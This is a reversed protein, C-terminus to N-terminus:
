SPSKARRALRNRPWSACKMPWWRSARAMSARVRRKLRRTSRWCTRRHRSTASPTSLKMCRAPRRRSRRTPRARRNLWAGGEHAESETQGALGSSHESGRAIQNISNTLGTLLQTIAQVKQTIAQERQVQETIDMAFKVVKYPKGNFDLIPNYTALIWVEAGHRARRRFRGSQYIGQALNAWFHRYESSRVLEPECFMSHHQGVVDEPTYGLTRLFNDNVSTVQGRLDFEIVAQSRGIADLKGKIDAHLRKQETVETAFKVV